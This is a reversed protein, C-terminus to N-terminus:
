RLTGYIFEQAIGFGMALLAPLAGLLWYIAPDTQFLYYVLGLLLCLVLGVIGGILPLILGRLSYKRDFFGLKSQTSYRMNIFAGLAGGLAGGFFATVLTLLNYPLLSGTALDANSLNAIVTALGDYYVYRATIVIMSLTTWAALYLNLRSHYLTSWHLTEQVRQSITRVQQLYYDVEASRSPDDHLITYAKQLLRLARERSEHGAPLAQEIETQLLVMEQQLTRPDLNSVRPLLNSRRISQNPRTKGGNQGYDGATFNDFLTDVPDVWPAANSGLGGNQGNAPPTQHRASIQQYRQEAAFVWQDANNGGTANPGAASKTTTSAPRPSPAGIATTRIDPPAPQQTTTRVAGTSTPSATQHHRTHEQLLSARVAPTMPPPVPSATPLAPPTPATPEAFHWSPRLWEDQPDSPAAPQATVAPPLDDAFGDDYAGNSYSTPHAPQTRGTPRNPTGTTPQDNAVSGNRVPRAPPPPTPTTDSAAIDIAGLMMEDLLVNARWQLLEPNQERSPPVRESVRKQVAVQSETPHGNGNEPPNNQAERKQRGTEQAGANQVVQAAMVGGSESQEDQFPITGNKVGTALDIYFL